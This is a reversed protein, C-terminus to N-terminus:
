CLCFDYGLIVFVVIVVMEIVFIGKVIFIVVNGIIFRDIFLWFGSLKVFM